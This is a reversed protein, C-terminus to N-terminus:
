VMPFRLPARLCGWESMVVHSHSEAPSLHAPLGSCTLIEWLIFDLGLELFLTLRALTPCLHFFHYCVIHIVVFLSLSSM